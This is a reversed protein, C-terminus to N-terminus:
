YTTCVLMCTCLYIITYIFLHISLYISMSVRLQWRFQNKDQKAENIQKSLHKQKALLSKVEQTHTKQSLEIVRELEQSISLSLCYISVDYSMCSIFVYMRVYMRVYTRVDVLWNELSSFGISM